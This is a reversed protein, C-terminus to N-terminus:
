QGTGQRQRPAWRAVAVPELRSKTWKRERPSCRYLSTSVTLVPPEGGSARLAPGSRSASRSVEARAARPYCGERGPSNSPTQWTKVKETSPSSPSATSTSPNAAAPAQQAYNFAKNTTRLTPSSPWGDNTCATVVAWLEDRVKSSVTGVYLEPTVELLLPHPNRPPPRTRSHSTVSPSASTGRAM